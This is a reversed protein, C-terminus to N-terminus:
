CKIMQILTQTYQGACTFTFAQEQEPTLTDAAAEEPDLAHSCRGEQQQVAAM